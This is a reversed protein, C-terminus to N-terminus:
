NFLGMDAALAKIQDEKIKYVSETTKAIRKMMFKELFNMREFLIEGGTLKSSIAHSRLSQPFAMEFQANAKENEEMCSLFLGLPKSTLITENEKCFKQLRSQVKGAHISGGVIIKDYSNLDLNRAKKLDIVDTEEKAMGKLMTAVKETTGHHSVYIIATKM